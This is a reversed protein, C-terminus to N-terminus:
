SCRSGSWNTYLGWLPVSSAIQSKEVIGKKVQIFSSGINANDKNVERRDGVSDLRVELVAENQIDIWCQNEPNNVNKKM